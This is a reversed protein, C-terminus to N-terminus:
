VQIPNLQQTNADSKLSSLTENLSGKMVAAEPTNSPFAQPFTTMGQVM